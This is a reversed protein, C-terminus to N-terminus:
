SNLLARTADAVQRYQDAIEETTMGSYNGGYGIADELNPDSRHDLSSHEGEEPRHGNNVSPLLTLSNHGITGLLVQDGDLTSGVKVRMSALVFGPLLLESIHDFARVALLAESHKVITHRGDDGVREALPGPLAVGPQAGSNRLAYEPTTVGTIELKQVSDGVKQASFSLDSDKSIFSTAIGISALYSAINDTAELIAM